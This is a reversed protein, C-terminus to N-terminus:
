KVLVKHVIKKDQTEASLIYAGQPLDVLSVESVNNYIAIHQGAMNYLVVNQCTESLLIKESTMKVTINTDGVPTGVSGLTSRYSFKTYPVYNMSSHSPNLVYDYNASWYAGRYPIGASYDVLWGPTGFHEDLNKYIDVVFNKGAEYKYPENFKVYLSNYAPDEGNLELDLDYVETMSEVDVFTGEFISDLIRTVDTNSVHIEVPIAALFEADISPRYALQMGTIYVDEEFGMENAFYLIQSRSQSNDLNVIHGVSYGDPQGITIYKDGDKPHSTVRLANATRNDADFDDDSVEVEGFIRFCTEDTPTWILTVEADEGPNLNGSYINSAIEAGEEDVLRITANNITSTGKNVFTVKFESPTDTYCDVPGSLYDASAEQGGVERVLIDSIGLTGMGQKSYVHFSLAGVGDEQPVYDVARSHWVAGETGPLEEYKMLSEKVSEVNAASGYMVEFNELANSYNSTIYKFTLRYTKGAEFMMAPLFLYDDAVNEYHTVYVYSKDSESFYWTHNDANKDEVTLEEALDISSLDNEYPLEFAPGFSVTITAAVGEGDKTVPVIKYDFHDYYSAKDAITTETTGSIIKYSGRYVDYVLSESDYWGNNKGAVPAQWSIAVQDDNVSYTLNAVEGPVDMGSFVDRERWLGEGVNNYPIVRYTYVGTELTAPDTWTMSEGIAETAVDAVAEGNRYIKVGSLQTLDNRDYSLTPNVWSLVVEDPNEEKTEAVFNSVYTPAGASAVQYPIAMAVYQAADPIRHEHRLSGDTIDVECVYGGNNATEQAAWWLRGTAHDFEMTQDYRIVRSGGDIDAIQETKFIGDEPTVSPDFKVLRVKEPTSINNDKYDQTIGYIVGDRAAMGFLYADVKGLRKPEYTGEAVDIVWLDMMRVSTNSLDTVYQVGYVKNTSPDYTMEIFHENYSHISSTKYKIEYDGTELDMVAIGVPIIYAGSWWSQYVYAWCEGNVYTASSITEYGDGTPFAKINTLNDPNQAQFKLLGYSMDGYGFKKFVYLTADDDNLDSAKLRNPASTVAVGSPADFSAKRVDRLVVEGDAPFIVNASSIFVALIACISFIKRMNAKINIYIGQIIM